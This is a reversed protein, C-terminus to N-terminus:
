DLGKEEEEEEGIRGEDSGDREGPKPSSARTCDKRM